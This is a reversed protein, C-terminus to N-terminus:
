ALIRLAHGLAATLLGSSVQDSSLFDEVVPSIRLYIMRELLKYCVSLLSIPRYSSAEQSLKKFTKLNQPCVLQFLIDDFSFYAM